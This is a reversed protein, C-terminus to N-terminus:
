YFKLSVYIYLQSFVILIIYSKSVSLYVLTKKQQFNDSLIISPLLITNWIIM